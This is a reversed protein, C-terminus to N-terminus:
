RGPRRHDRFGPTRKPMAFPIRTVVTRAAAVARSSGVAVAHAATMVAPSSPTPRENAKVAHSPAMLQAQNVPNKSFRKPSSVNAPSSRWRRAAKVRAATTM